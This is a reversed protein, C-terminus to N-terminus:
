RRAGQVALALRARDAYVSASRFSETRWWERYTAHGLLDILGRTQSEHARLAAIKQDLLDDTLTVNHALEAPDDCPPDPQDAWLGIQDNIEGWRQHFDSSLTAYWLTAAPRTAAWARTTWQSVARHDPHGTLGDPGFTVILDPAINAIHAAIADTGDRENCRGDEFGLLHLEDVGVAALSRRLERHRLAALRAPPWTHPDDTGREGLTATVLVVRGGSRRFEAMLGASLYAEDDPHAWVGLLTRRSM